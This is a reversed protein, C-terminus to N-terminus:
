AATTARTTTTRRINIASVDGSGIDGPYVDNVADFLFMGDLHPGGNIVRVIDKVVKTATTADTVTLIALSNEIAEGGADGGDAGGNGFNRNFVGTEDFTLEVSTNGATICILDEVSFAAMDLNTGSDHSGVSNSDVTASHFVMMPKM